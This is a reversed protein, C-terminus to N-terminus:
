SKKGNAPRRDTRLPTKKQPRNRYVLKRLTEATDTQKYTPDYARRITSVLDALEKYHERGTADKILGVLFVFHHDRGSTRLSAHRKVAKNAIDQIFGAVSPIQEVLNQPYVIDWGVDSLYSKVTELDSSVRSLRKSISLLQEGRAAFVRKV